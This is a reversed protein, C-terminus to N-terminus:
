RIAVSKAQPAAQGVIGILSLGVALLTLRKKMKNLKISNKSSYISNEIYLGERYTLLCLFVLKFICSNPFFLILCLSGQRKM